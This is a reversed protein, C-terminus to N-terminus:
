RIVHLRSATGAPLGSKAGAAGSSHMDTMGQALDGPPAIWATKAMRSPLIPHVPLALGLLTARAPHCGPGARSSKMIKRELRIAFRIAASDELAGGATISSTPLAM